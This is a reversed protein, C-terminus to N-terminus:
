LKDEMLSRCLMRTYGWGWGATGASKTESESEEGNEKKGDVDENVNYQTKGVTM